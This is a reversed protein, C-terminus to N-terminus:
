LRNFRIDLKIKMEDRIFSDKVNAFVSKSKYNVEWRTRDLVIEDTVAHIMQDDMAVRAPFSIEHSIGKITLDGRILQMGQGDEKVATIVFNAKPFKAVDFFDDSKLHNVLKERTEEKKLDENQISNM